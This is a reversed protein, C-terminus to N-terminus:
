LTGSVPYSSVSEVNSLFTYSGDDNELLVWLGSSDIMASRKTYYTEPRPAAFRQVVIKWETPSVPPPLPM